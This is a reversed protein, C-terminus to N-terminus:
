KDETLQRAMSDMATPPEPPPVKPVVEVSRAAYTALGHLVLSVMYFQLPTLGLSTLLGTRLEDPVTAWLTGLLLALYQVQATGYTWVKGADDVLKLKM